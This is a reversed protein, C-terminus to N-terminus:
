LSAFSKRRMGNRYLVRRDGMYVIRYFTKKYHFPNKVTWKQIVKGKVLKDVRYQVKRISCGCAKAIFSLAVPKPTASYGCQGLLVHYVALGLPDLRPLVITDRSTRDLVRSISVFSM